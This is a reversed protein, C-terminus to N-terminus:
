TLKIHKSLKKEKDSKIYHNNSRLSSKTAVKLEKFKFSHIAGQILSWLVHIVYYDLYITNPTSDTPARIIQFCIKHTIPKLAMKVYDLKINM